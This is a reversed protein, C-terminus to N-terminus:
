DHIPCNGNNYIIAGPAPNEMCQKCAPKDPSPPPPAANMFQGNDHRVSDVVKEVTSDAARRIMDKFDQRLAKLKRNYDLQIKNLGSAFSSISYAMWAMLVSVSWHVEIWIFALLTLVVLLNIAPGYKKINQKM